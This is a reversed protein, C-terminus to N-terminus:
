TADSRVRFRLSQPTDDGLRERLRDLLQGQMLDLEQAWVSDVCSVVVAGEREAIPEAVAAVGEGVADAWAAQVAALRTKPSARQLAARIADSAPRPARRCTM